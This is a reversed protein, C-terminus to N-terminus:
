STYHGVPNAYMKLVTDQLEPKIAQIRAKFAEIDQIPINDVDQEAAILNSPHLFYNQYIQSDIEEAVQDANEFAGSLPKGFAVHVHGKKLL